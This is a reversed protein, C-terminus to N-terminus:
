KGGEGKQFYEQGCHSCVLPASICALCPASIFCSCEEPQVWQLVGPCDEEECCDGDELHRKNMEVFKGIM